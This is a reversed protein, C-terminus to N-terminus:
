PASLTVRLRELHPSRPHAREFEAARKRAEDKRQLKVLAEIAIVEREQVFMGKPYHAAHDAVLALSRAPSITLARRAQALLTLEATPDTAPTHETEVSPPPESTTHRDPVHRRAAIKSKAPLEPTRDSLSAAVVPPPSAPHVPLSPPLAAQVRAPEAEPTHRTQYLAATGVLLAALLGLKGRSLALAPRTAESAASASPVDSPLAAADGIARYMRDRLEPTPGVDAYERLSGRLEQPLDHPDDLWRTPENPNSM